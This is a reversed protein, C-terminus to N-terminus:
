HNSCYKLRFDESSLLDEKRVGEEKCVKNLDFSPPTKKDDFQILDFPQVNLAKSIKYLTYLDMNSKLQEISCITKGHVGCLEGLKEQSIGLSKRYRRVYNRFIM